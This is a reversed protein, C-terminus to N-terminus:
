LQIGVFISFNICISELNKQNTKLGEVILSSLNAATLTKKKELTKDMDFKTIILPLFNIQGTSLQKKSTLLSAIQKNYLRSSLTSSKLSFV